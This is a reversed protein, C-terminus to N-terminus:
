DARRDSVRCLSQTPFVDLLHPRPNRFQKLLYVDDDRRLIKRARQGAM